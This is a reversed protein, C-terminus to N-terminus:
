GTKENLLEVLADPYRSSALWYPTRDEADTIEIKVVPDIWGRICLYTLGHLNPGRETTAEAKSFGEVHGVYTRDIQARGVRLSSATVLIKPTSMVMAFVLVMLTIVSAIIGITIDIPVFIVSPVFSLAVTIAWVGVTPSLREMYLVSEDGYHDQKIGTPSSEATGESLNAEDLATGKINRAHPRRKM